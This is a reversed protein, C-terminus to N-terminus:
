ELSRIYSVLNDVENRTLAMDPMVPHPDILFEGLKEGAMLPNRAIEFFTPVDPNGSTQDAAVIHCNACWQRAVREGLGPDGAARAGVTTVGAVLISMLSRKIM